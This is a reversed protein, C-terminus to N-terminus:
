MVYELATQLDPYRFTYGASQLRAPSVRASSLLVERAMERFLCKLVSAPITMCAPRHLKRALSQAFQKQSVPHPSVLNVPGSLSDDMLIHYLAGIADDIGIWSIIQEGSGLKGGLGWQFAPLMRALAGGKRSLVMGFRPHVVRSGRKEIADTAQEWKQCLDALFGKGPRSDEDLEENGRDGYFGIASATVVTKPPRYLRCLVQSLLWTDRCRSLFIAKKRQATWVGGINEGALHVVADFDEFDEKCLLGQSPDWYVTNEDSPKAGRMLSVVQHGATELLVKLHSGILGRTGSLLIRLPSRAYREFLKLDEKLVAHRWSFLRFFERHFYRKFLSSYAIDESLECAHEGKPIVLHRHRYSKFPGKIQVDNFEFKPNQGHELVWNISLPGFHVKLGVKSGEVEPSGPQFLFTIKRWPPLMREMAGKKLHWDFVEQASFPLQSSFSFRTEAM